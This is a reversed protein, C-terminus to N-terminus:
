PKQTVQIRGNFSAVFPRTHLVTVTVVDGSVLLQGKGLSLYDFDTNLAGGFYTRRKDIISGNITLTYAAINEGSLTIKELTASSGGPVTYSVVTTSAGSAINTIENYTNVTNPANASSPPLSTQTIFSM